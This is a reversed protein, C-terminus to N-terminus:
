VREERLTGITSSHLVVARPAGSKVNVRRGGRKDFVGVKLLVSYIQESPDMVALLRPRKGGSTWM